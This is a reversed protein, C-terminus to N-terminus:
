YRVARYLEGTIFTVGILGALALSVRNGSFLHELNSSLGAIILLSFPILTAANLMSVMFLQASSVPRRGTLFRVVSIAIPVCIASTLSAIDLFTGYILPDLIYSITYTYTYTYNGIGIIIFLALVEPLWRFLSVLAYNRHEGYRFPTRLRLLVIQAQIRIPLLAAWKRLWPAEVFARSREYLMRKWQDREREVHLIPQALYGHDLQWSTGGDPDIVPRVIEDQELRALTRTAIEDSVGMISALRPTVIAPAKDPPHRTRDVLASLLRLVIDESDVGATYRARALAEAVFAAELGAVRGVRAYVAPTLRRLTRLGGFVVKLQQPLIQGRAELDDVLRDRLAVWGNQPDAIVPKDPPPRETLRDIITRVLGPELRALDFQPTNLHFRLSELGKAADERCAVIISMSGNQTCARLVRWFLNDISIDEASKWIRTEQPLFRDRHEPKAQFDDFQDLLVLLRRQTRSRYDAFTDSYARIGSHENLKGLARDDPALARVFSERLARLPGSEWDLVSMDIYICLYRQLFLPGQAVGARLLASKGCGSESVLFVIPNALARALKDLDDRRGILQEPSQPDLRLADGDLLRSSRDGRSRWLILCILSIISFVSYEHWGWNRPDWKLLEQWLAVAAALAGGAAVLGGKYKELWKLLTDIDLHLSGTHSAKNLRGAVRIDANIPWWSLSL